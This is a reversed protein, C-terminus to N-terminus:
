GTKKKFKQTFSLFKQNWYSLLTKKRCITWLLHHSFWYVLTQSVPPKVLDAAKAKLHLVSTYM